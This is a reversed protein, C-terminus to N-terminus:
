CFCIMNIFNILLSLYNYFLKLLKKNKYILFNRRVIWRVILVKFNKVGFIRLLRGM